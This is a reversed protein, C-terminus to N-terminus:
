KIPISLEVGTSCGAGVGAMAGISASSGGHDDM